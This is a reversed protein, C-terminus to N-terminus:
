FNLICFTLIRSNSLDNLTRGASGVWGGWREAVWSRECARNAL